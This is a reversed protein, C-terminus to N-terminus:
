LALTETYFGRTAECSAAFEAREDATLPLEVVAEVGECGLVAPVGAYVGSQGYQGELLASVPLVRHENHFVCRAIECLAAGVGFGVSGRSERAQRGGRRATEAVQCLDITGYSDPYSNMLELLPRGGVNVNSWPVMQSEGQEGMAYAHVSKQDVRLEQALVRRLRAADLAAWGGVVRRPLFGTREQLCHTVVDCPDSLNVVIGGFGSAALEAAIRRALGVAAALSDARAGRFGPAPGACVVALDADACDEMRGAKVELHHPLYAAADLLDAARALAKPRDADILVLEDCVGQTALALACHSGVHGTGIVAVKRTKFSM